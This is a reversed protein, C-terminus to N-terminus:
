AQCCINSQSSSYRFHAPRDFTLAAAAQRSRHGPRHPPRRALLAQSLPREAGKKCGPLRPGLLEGPRAHGSRSLPRALLQLTLPVRGEAVTPTEHM